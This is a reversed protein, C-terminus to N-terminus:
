NNIHLEIIGCERWFLYIPREVGTLGTSFENKYLLTPLYHATYPGGMAWEGRAHLLPPYPAFAPPSSTGFVGELIYRLTGYRKELKINYDRNICYMQSKCLITIVVRGGRHFMAETCIRYGRPGCFLDMESCRRYRNCCRKELRTM